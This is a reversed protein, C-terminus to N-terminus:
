RAILVSCKAHQVLYSSVSGMMMKEVRNLGTAGCVLLDAGFLEPIEEALMKKPNGRELFTGVSQLGEAEAKEQFGRLVTEMEERLEEEWTTGEVTFSPFSRTDIVAAMALSAGTDKALKLADAFAKEAQESGDIAVLIRKYSAMDIEGVREYKDNM